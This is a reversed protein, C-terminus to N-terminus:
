ATFLGYRNYFANIINKLTQDLFGKGKKLIENPIFRYYAEAIGGAICAITDSDGGISVAKRVASEYDESELFAVIAYPVSKLARSDFTYNPRIEDLTFNLPLFLKREIFERIAQKSEGHYAMFVAAATAQTCQVAEKHRHTYYCSDRAQKLVENLNDFAYGIPVVRMASGNGYSKQVYLNDNKAWQAFM